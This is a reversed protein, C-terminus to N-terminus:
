FRIKVPGFLGSSKDDQSFAQFRREYPSPPPYTEHLFQRVHAPSTANLLSNAVIIELSNVGRKVHIEYRHPGFFRGPLKKGNFIVQACHHVRGLDLIADFSTKARFSNRYIASGSFEEGLIPRWDGLSVPQIPAEPTDVIDYGDKGVSHRRRMQLTWGRALTRTHCPESKEAVACEPKRPDLIFLASGSPPFSYRIIGAQSPIPTFEAREIDCLSVLGKEKFDITVTANKQSENVLFFLKREGLVRKTVRIDYSGSIGCTRPAYHRVFSPKFLINGNNDIIRCITTHAKSQLWERESTYALTDYTMKGITFTGDKHVTASALQDDDIFDFDCGYKLLEKAYAHHYRIAMKADEGGAWIARVDYVLAIRVEPKGLSLLAGVREMYTVLPQMFEWYPHQPGFHIGPSGMRSGRVHLHYASLVFINVGRVFQYDMLWKIVEPTTGDGYVALSESMVLNSGNQHAASSAYKPFCPNFNNIESDRAGEQVYKLKEKNPYLQRWIVDVGPVDFARLARLIHGYGFRVNGIPQNEGNLHGSSLLGNAHCWDRIPLMYRELFLDARVDFYDIRVFKMRPSPHNGEKIIRKMYRRIDYGKRKKFEEAFDSCWTFSLGETCGAMNPEDTFTLFATKGFHEKGIAKRYAEHTLRIFLETCGKEIVAPYPASVEPQYSQLRVTVKGNGDLEINRNAFRKEDMAIIKGCAGGSPWGGEDYLWVHMGLSKAYDMVRSVIKMYAPTLYDPEMESPMTGPRFAKPFPHPCLARIGHARMDDIQAKLVEFDLKENWLWFFSPSFINRPSKLTKELISM